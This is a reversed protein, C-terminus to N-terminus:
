RWRVGSVLVLPRTSVLVASFLVVVVVAVTTSITGLSSCWCFTALSLWFSVEGLLWGTYENRSRMTGHTRSISCAWIDWQCAAAFLADRWGFEDILGLYVIWLPCMAPNGRPIWTPLVPNGLHIWAVSTSEVHFDQETVHIRRPFETGLRPNWTFIQQRPSWTFIGLNARQSTAINMRM